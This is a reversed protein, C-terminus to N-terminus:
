LNIVYLALAYKERTDYSNAEYEVYATRQQHQENCFQEQLLVYM